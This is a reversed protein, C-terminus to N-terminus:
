GIPTEKYRLLRKPSRQPLHGAGRPRRITADRRTLGRQQPLNAPRKAVIGLELRQPPSRPRVRRPETCRDVLCQALADPTLDDLPDNLTKGVQWAPPTTLQHEVDELPGAHIQAGPKADV